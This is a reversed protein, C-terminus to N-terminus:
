HIPRNIEGIQLRHLLQEIESFYLCTEYSWVHNPYSNPAERIHRNFKMGAQGKRGQRRRDEAAATGAGAAAEEAAAATTAACDSVNGDNHNLEITFHQHAM